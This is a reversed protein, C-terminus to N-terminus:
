KKHDFKSLQRSIEPPVPPYRTENDLSSDRRSIRDTARNDLPWDSKKKQKINKFINSSNALMHTIKPIALKAARRGETYLYLNYKDTFMDIDKFDFDIVVDAHAASLKSQNIYAINISRKLVGLGNSPEVDSLKEAINVAIVTSFGLDKALRAPVPDTIACDIFYQGQLHVPAYFGPYAASALIAKVLDGDSFATLNGYELNTATAIFPIKLKAFDNTNLNKALYEGLKNENYIGYPLSSLSFAIVDQKKGSLLLTKLADINPNAAYLAGVIAGASCGIIVDPVIGAQNLEEIVGVHAFGKAGGGGLVLTVRKNVINQPAPPEYPAGAASFKLDKHCSVCFLLISFLTVLGIIKIKMSQKFM